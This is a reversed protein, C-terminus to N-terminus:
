LMQKLMSDLSLNLIYNQYKKVHTHTHTHLKNSLHYIINVVPCHPHLLKYNTARRETHATTVKLDHVQMCAEFTVVQLVLYKFLHLYSVVLALHELLIPGYTIPCPSDIHFMPPPIIDYPCPLPSITFGCTIDLASYM